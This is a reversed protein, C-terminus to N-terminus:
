LLSELVWCVVTLILAYFSIHLHSSVNYLLMMYEIWDIYNAARLYIGPFHPEGCGYGFSTIGKLYFINQDHIFCMFPGGSDGQCSDIGGSEYGACIMNSTLLGGYWGSKNCLNSPLIKVEADRLINTTRGKYRTAGWGAVFCKLNLNAESVNAHLCIPQIYDSYTVPSRLQVLTIDNDMNDASFKSNIIIRKISRRQVSISPRLLNNTGFMARWREPFRKEKFCHAATLVWSKELLSGGCIHKYRYSFFAYQLSVQWPWEGPEAHQGGVIRSVPIGRLPRKGCHNHFRVDLVERVQYTPDDDIATATPDPPTRHYRSLVVPKLLSVHFVNHIRLTSPLRLRYSVLGVREAVRFPGCFKPAFRRSPLRLHINKTSLWVRDGPQYIPAPRRHRDAAQKASVASHHLQKKIKHWLTQLQRATVQVAPSANPVDLPLAAHVQNNYAFEAWPLLESWNDQRENIFAQIYAKLTRNMRETQGNSQPHFATSFSLKVKFCKCLARWYRAVFQSGRDSVIDQPLGHLRFVHQAFLRAM